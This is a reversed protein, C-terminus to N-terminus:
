GETWRHRTKKEQQLWGHIEKGIFDQETAQCHGPVIQFGGESYWWQPVMEEVEAM